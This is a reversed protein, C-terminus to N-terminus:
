SIDPTSRIRTGTGGPPTLTLPHHSPPGREPRPIDPPPLGIPHSGVPRQPSGDPTVARSACKAGLGQQSSGGLSRPVCGGGGRPSGAIALEARDDHRRAASIPLCAGPDLVISGGDLLTRAYLDLDMVQQWRDDFRLEPLLDVRYSVSPCYFFLGHMLRALGDDGVLTMPLERPWLLSKVSDGLTRTPMGDRDVVTVRPAVCSATPFMRHASRVAAVYGPELVDDAHFVTVIEAEHRESSSVDISTPPLVSTRRTACTGFASTESPLSWSRPGVTGSQRRRGCDGDVTSGVPRDVVSARGRSVRPELLLPHRPLTAACGAARRDDNVSARM